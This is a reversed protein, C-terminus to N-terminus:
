KHVLTPHSVWVGGPGRLSIAFRCSSWSSRAPQSKNPHLCFLSDLASLPPSALYPLSLSTSHMQLDRTEWGQIRWGSGWLPFKLRPPLLSFTSSYCSKEPPLRSCCAAAVPITGRTIGPNGGSLCSTSRASSRSLHTLSASHLPALPSSTASRSPPPWLLRLCLFFLVFVLSEM